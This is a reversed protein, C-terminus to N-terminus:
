RRSGHVAMTLLEPARPPWPCRRGQRGKLINRGVVSDHFTGNNIKIVIKVMKSKTKVWVPIRVRLDAHPMEVWSYEAIDDGDEGEHETVRKAIADWKSYDTAQKLSAVKKFQGM